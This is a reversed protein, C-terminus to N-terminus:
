QAGGQPYLHEMLWESLASHARMAADDLRHLEDPTTDPPCLYQARTASELKRVLTMVQVWKPYLNPVDKTSVVHADPLSTM